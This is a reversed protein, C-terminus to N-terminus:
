FREELKQNRLKKKQAETLATDAKHDHMSSLHNGTKEYTIPDQNKKSRRPRPAISHALWIRTQHVIYQCSVAVIHAMTGVSVALADAKNDLWGRSKRLFLREGKAQEIFVLVFVAALAVTAVALLSGPILLM